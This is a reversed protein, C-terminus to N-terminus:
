PASHGVVKTVEDLLEQLKLPKLLYARVGHRKFLPEMENYATLVIVPIGAYAPIRSKEVIFTYGNMKPMQIDLLTLDPIKQKLCVMAEEGDTATIVEYGLEQLKRKAIEIVVLEDDVVLITKSM